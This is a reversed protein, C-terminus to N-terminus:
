FKLKLQESARRREGDAATFARIARDRRDTLLRALQDRHQQEQRLLAATEQEAADRRATLGKLRGSAQRASIVDSVLQWATLERAAVDRAQRQAEATAEAEDARLKAARLQMRLRHAQARRLLASTDKRRQEHHEHAAFATDKRLRLMSTTADADAFVSAAMAKATATARQNAQVEEHVIALSLM